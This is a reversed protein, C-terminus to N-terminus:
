AHPRRLSQTPTVQNRLRDHQCLECAQSFQNRRVHYGLHAAARLKARAEANHAEANNRKTSRGVKRGHHSAIADLIAPEIKRMVRQLGNDIAKHHRGLTAGIDNYSGGKLYELLVACEFESLRADFTIALRVKAALQEASITDFASPSPDPYFDAVTRVDADDNYLPADTSLAANLPMHKLRTHTKVASIVNRTVVMQVFGRFSAKSEPKFDRVAKYFGFRAEQLCDEFDAGQLYYQRALTRLTPTYRILLAEFADNDGSQAAAIRELEDKM